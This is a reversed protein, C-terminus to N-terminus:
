VRLCFDDNVKGALLAFGLAVSFKESHMPVTRPGLAGALQIAALSAPATHEQPRVSLAAGRPPGGPKEYTNM